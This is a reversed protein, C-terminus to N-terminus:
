ALESLLARAEKLDATDFGETFWSYIRALVESAEARRGEEALLGALNTAARLEILRADRERAAAVARRFCYEAHEREDTEGARRLAVIGSLRDIEPDSWHEGTERALASADALVAAADDVEGALLLADAARALRYPGHLKSGTRRWSALGDRLCALGEEIRGVAISAWGQFMKTNAVVLPSGHDVAFPLMEGTLECLAAADRRLYYAESVFQYAHALSGHHALRRALALARRAQSLARDPHGLLASVMSGLAHGCVGPDHGGYLLPHHEHAEARYLPLGSDLSRHAARLDGQLLAATTWAAHHAQLMLESSRQERALAFLQDVLGDTTRLDGASFSALWSGWLAQFLRVSRGSEEALQRARAYVRAVEPAASSTTTMLAPGLAISIRLEWAAREFPDALEETLRLAARLLDIVERDASRKKAREGARFWYEIARVPAGAASLHHALLEPQREVIDPFRQELAAAARAHLEQRRARVLTGYAAEQVLAHKFLYSSQPAAGRCVLLGADTLQALAADLNPQRVIQRILDYAFEDGLLAGTQAVERAGPGLRDLRAAVAAQLTAPIGGASAAGAALIAALGEKPNASALVAKTLEEVLLPVGATHNVIEAVSKDDLEANGGLNQVLAASRRPSLPKLALSMLHQLQWVPRFEPAFTVLLLVPLRPVREVVLDLLERSTPDLWQVDEFLVLVPRSQALADLRRLLTQLLMERKRQPSRDLDAASNPLALLEAVLEMEDAGPAGPTLLASLKALKQGATDGRGFQAARELQAIM